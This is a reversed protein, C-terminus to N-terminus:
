KFKTLDLRINMFHFETVRVMKIMRFCIWSFDLKHLTFTEIFNDFCLHM